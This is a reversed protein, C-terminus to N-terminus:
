AFLRSVWQCCVTIGGCVACCKSDTATLPHDVLLSFMFTPFLPVFISQYVRTSGRVDIVNVDAVTHQRLVYFPQFNGPSLKQRSAPGKEVDVWRCRNSSYSIERCNPQAVRKPVLNTQCSSQFWVVSRWHLRRNPDSASPIQELKKINHGATVSSVYLTRSEM